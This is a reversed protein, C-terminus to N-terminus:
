VRVGARAGVLELSRQRLNNTPGDLGAGAAYFNSEGNETNQINRSWQSVELIGQWAGWATDRIGANHAANWAWLHSDMMKEWKTLRGKVNDEPKEGHLTTVVNEFKKTTFPTEFLETYTEHVAVRHLRRAAIVKVAAAIRDAASATHRIKNEWKTGRVSANIVNACNWRMDVDGFMISGSGDFTTTATFYNLVRDSVGNPDLVFEKDGTMQVWLRSNKLMGATEFTGEPNALAAAELLECPQSGELSHRMGVVGAYVRTGDEPGGQIERYVARNDPIAQGTEADAIDVHQFRFNLNAADAVKQWEKAPIAGISQGLGDWAKVRGAYMEQGNGATVIKTIASM